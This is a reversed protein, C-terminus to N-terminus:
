PMAVHIFSHASVYVFLFLYTAFFQVFSSLSVSHSDSEIASKGILQGALM